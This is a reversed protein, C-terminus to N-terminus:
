DEVDIQVLYYQSKFGNDDFSISSLGAESVQLVPNTVENNALLIEKLHKANFSIPNKVTDKGATTTVELAIQDSLNQKYGLVMDMKQKRKSMLLTFLTADDGLASFSKSFAEIFEPPLTIEVGFPPINKMKPTGDIVDVGALVYTSQNKGDDIFLQRARTKDNSDIDLTLSVNDGLPALMKKLKNTDQVGVEVGSFWGAGKDYTVSTFLKRDSTMATVALNGSDNSWLVGEIAGNLNYKKIFTEIHKKEM